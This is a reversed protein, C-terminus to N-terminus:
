GETVPRAASAYMDPRTNSPDRRVLDRLIAQAPVAARTGGIGHELVVTVAYRPAAVPAYCVFLGHNRLRWPLDEQDRM